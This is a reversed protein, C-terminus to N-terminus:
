PNNNKMITSLEHHHDKAPQGFPKELERVVGKRDAKSRNQSLKFKGHLETVQMRFGVIADLMSDPYDPIWPDPNSAEHFDSLGEVIDRTPERSTLAELKGRMHVVCYNWTPVGQEEYWTPSIYGHPGEFIALGMQDDFHKWHPNAKAVHGYLWLQDGSNDIQFPLHSAFPQNEIVSVLTGFNNERSIELLVDHDKIAFHEPIYM